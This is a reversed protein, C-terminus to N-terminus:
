DDSLVFFEVIAPEIKIIETFSPKEIIEVPVQSVSSENPINIGARFMEPKIRSYDKLPVLYTIKVMEPFTKVTVNKDIPQLVIDVTAETFKEANITLEVLDPFFNLGASNDPVEIDSMIKVPGDINNVQKNVTKVFSIKDLMNKSGTVLVSDPVSSVSDALRYLGQFSLSVDPIVPVKKGAIAEFKFFLNEPNVSVLEETFNNQDVIEQSIRSTNFSASFNDGRKELNLNKLDIEIPKRRTLYKLTIMEFGGSAVRFTLVSDPHNVLMLGDPLNTYDIPYDLTSVSEKSLAILFWLFISIFLCILFVYLKHRFREDKPRIVKQLQGIITTEYKM